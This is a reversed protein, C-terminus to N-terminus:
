QDNRLQFLRFQAQDVTLLAFSSQEEATLHRKIMKEKKKASWKKASPRSLLDLLREVRSSSYQLIDKHESLIKELNEKTESSEKTKKEDDKKKNRLLIKKKKM